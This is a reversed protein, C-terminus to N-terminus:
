VPCTASSSISLTKGSPPRGESCLGACCGKRQAEEPEPGKPLCTLTLAELFERGNLSQVSGHSDGWSQFRGQVGPGQRLERSVPAGESTPTCESVWVSPAGSGGPLIVTSMLSALLLSPLDLCPAPPTPHKMRFWPVSVCPKIEHPSAEM